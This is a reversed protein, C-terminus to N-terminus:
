ASTIVRCSAIGYFGLRQNGTPGDWPLDMSRNVWVPGFVSFAAVACLGLVRAAWLKKSPKPRLFTSSAAPAEWANTSPPEVGRTDGVESLRAVM